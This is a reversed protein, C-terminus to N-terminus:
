AGKIKGNSVNQITKDIWGVFALTQEPYIAWIALILLIVILFILAAHWTKLVRQKSKM